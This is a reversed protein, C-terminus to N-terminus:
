YLSYCNFVDFLHIFSSFLFGTLKFIRFARSRYCQMTSYQVVVNYQIAYQISHKHDSSYEAATHTKMVPDRGYLLTICGPRWSTKFNASKEMFIQLNQLISFYKGM